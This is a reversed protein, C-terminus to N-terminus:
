VKGLITFASIQYLFMDSRKLDVKVSIIILLDYPNFIKSNESNMFITDMRNSFKRSNMISNYVNKNIYKALHLRHIIQRNWKTLKWIHWKSKIARTSNTIKSTNTKAKYKAESLSFSYNRVLQIIKKRLNFLYYYCIKNFETSRRKSLNSKFKVWNKYVKKPNADDGKVNEFLELPNQYGKFDKSSRGVTKLKYIM